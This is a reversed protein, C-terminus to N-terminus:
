TNNHKSQRPLNSIVALHHDDHEAVFYLSDILRMAKNLRPHVSIKGLMVEDFYYIFELIRKRESTFDNMIEHLSKENHNAEKTKANSMDAATLVPRNQEFDKLRRWWMEELDTLHGIHQKVSWGNETISCYDENANATLNQLRFITGELRSFIVPFLGISFDFQFSREIWPTISIM